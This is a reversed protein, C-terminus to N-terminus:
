LSLSNSTGDAAATSERNFSNEETGVGAGWNRFSCSATASTNPDEVMSSSRCRRDRWGYWFQTIDVVLISSLADGVLRATVSSCIRLADRIESRAQKSISYQDGACKNEFGSHEGKKAAVGKRTSEHLLVPTASKQKREIEDVKM